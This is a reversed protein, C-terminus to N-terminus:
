TAGNPFEAPNILSPMQQRVEIAFPIPPPNERLQIAPFRPMTEGAGNKVAFPTFGMTMCVAASPREM